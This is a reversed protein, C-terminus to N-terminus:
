ESYFDFKKFCDVLVWTVQGRMAERIDNRGSEEKSVRNWGCQGGPEVFNGPVCRGWSRRVLQEKQKSNEEGLSRDPKSVGEGRPRHEFAMHEILSGQSGFKNIKSKIKNKSKLAVGM